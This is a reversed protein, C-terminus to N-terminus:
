GAVNIQGGVLIYRAALRELEASERVYREYDWERLPVRNKGSNEM